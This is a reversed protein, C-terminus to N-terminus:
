APIRKQEARAERINELRAVFDAHEDCRMALSLIQERTQESCRLAALAYCEDARDRWHRAREEATM